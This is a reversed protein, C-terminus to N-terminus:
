RGIFAGGTSVALEKLFKSYSKEFYDGLGVTNVLIKKGKARQALVYNLIRESANAGVGGGLSTPNGDTFLIICDIDRYAEFAMRLAALTDTQNGKPKTNGLKELLDRADSGLGTGQTSIKAVLKGRSPHAYAHEAFTILGIEKVPLHELWTEATEVAQEWFTTKRGEGVPRGMSQSTDFLFLVRDLKGQIGILEHPLAKRLRERLHRIQAELDAVQQKLPGEVAGAKGLKRELEAVKEELRAREERECRLDECTRRHAKREAEFARDSKELVRQLAELKKQVETLQNELNLEARKWTQTEERLRREARSSRRALLLGLGLMLVMILLFIDSFSVWPIAQQDDTRPEKSAM